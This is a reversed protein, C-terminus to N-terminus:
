INGKRLFSFPLRFNGKWRRYVQDADGLVTWSTQVVPRAEEISNTGKLEWERLMNKLVKALKNSQEKMKWARYILTRTDMRMDDLAERDKEPGRWHVLFFIENEKEKRGRVKNILIQVFTEIRGGKEWYKENVTLIENSLNGLDAAFTANAPDKDLQKFKQLTTRVAPIIDKLYGHVEQETPTLISLKSIKPWYYYLGAIIVLILLFGRSFSM